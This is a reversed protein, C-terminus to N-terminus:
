FFIYHVIINTFIAYLFVYSGNGILEVIWWILKEPTKKKLNFCKLFDYKILFFLIEYSFFIIANKM